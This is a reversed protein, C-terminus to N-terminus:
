TIRFEELNELMKRLDWLQEFIQEFTLNQEHISLYTKKLYKLGILISEMSKETCNVNM